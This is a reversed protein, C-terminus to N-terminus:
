LICEESWCYILMIEGDNMLIKQTFNWTKGCIARACKPKNTVPEQKAKSWKCIHKIQKIQKMKTVKGSYTKRM